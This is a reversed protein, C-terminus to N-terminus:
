TYRGKPKRPKPKAVDLYMGWCAYGDKNTHCVVMDDFTGDWKNKDGCLSCVQLIIRKRGKPKHTPM